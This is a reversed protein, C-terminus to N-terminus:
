GEVKKLWGLAFSSNNVDVSPHQQIGKKNPLKDQQYDWKKEPKGIIAVIQHLRRVLEFIIRFFQHVEEKLSDSGISPINQDKMDQFHQIHHKNCNSNKDFDVDELQPRHTKQGNDHVFLGANQVAYKRVIPDTSFCSVTMNWVQRVNAM